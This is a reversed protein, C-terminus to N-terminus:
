AETCPLPKTIRRKPLATLHTKRGVKKEPEEKRADTWSGGRAARQGAAIREWHLVSAGLGLVELALHFVAAAGMQPEARALHEALPQGM